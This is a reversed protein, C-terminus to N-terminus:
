IDYNICDIHDNSNGARRTGTFTRYTFNQTPDGGDAPIRKGVVKGHSKITGDAFLHAHGLVFHAFKDPTTLAGEVL